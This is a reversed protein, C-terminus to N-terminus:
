ASITDAAKTGAAAMKKVARSAIVGVLLVVALTVAIGVWVVWTPVAQDLDDRTLQNVGAGIVVALTTRPAMGLVTGVAFPLRPVKVSAMVLNTLAFPSNPPLRLLAVIGATRVWGQNSHPGGERARGLLGDRVAKWKPHQAIVREARDGSFRRALEYGILAAGAFGLLAAPVGFVVGFAFGGLAAQAYTPLLALGALTAFAAVYILLGLENERLWPGTIGMTLFLGISGLPPLTLALAALVSTPGLSRVVAVGAMIRAHGVERVIAWAAVAAGAGGIALVGLSGSVSLVAQILIERVMGPVRPLFFLSLMLALWLGGGMLFAADSGRRPAQTEPSESAGQGPAEEM